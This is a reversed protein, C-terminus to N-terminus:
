VHAGQEGTLVNGTLAETEADILPKGPAVGVVPVGIATVVPPTVPASGAPATTTPNLTPVVLVAYQLSPAVDVVLSVAMGGALQNAKVTPAAVCSVHMVDVDVVVTLM